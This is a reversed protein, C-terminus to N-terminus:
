MRAFNRWGFCCVSLSMKRLLINGKAANLSKSAYAIPHEMGENEQYLVAGVGSDSADCQIVFPNSFDPSALVPASTLRSKVEMFAREAEETWVIPQGKKMGHLLDTIPSSISSFIKIFRRYWSVLDLLRKIEPTNKPTPYNVIDSM